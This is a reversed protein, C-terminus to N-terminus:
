RWSYTKKGWCKCVKLLVLYVVSLGVLLIMGLKFSMSGSAMALLIIYSPTCLMMVLNMMGLEVATSTKFEPDVIRVLAIGSPVTGTCTGFLGLTREFDNEGGLRSGFYFCVLFTLGAIILVEIVIPIIWSKLMEVSIAMFACVVLYDATWGTIKTQLINERLFDIKLKKMVFKVIYAAYMGNMFMLGSMSNGLFGPLLSFVKAILIALLYCIGILAFHFSLTEINSSCTTDKVMYNTQEEKRLYGRQVSDELQGCKKAIGRKIGAKVAPIGVFFATLFGFAAFVLAVMKANEWGYAEFIQGFSAAQGPGQAFAFPILTGYMADMQFYKGFIAIVGAGVVPTLSYLLCWIIGMGLAGKFVSKSENKKDAQTLTISIFSITFLNDVISSYIESNVESIGFYKWLFNMFIFGLIGAIVSSPVLMKKFFSIKARFIMGLCIMISAIGFAMMVRM